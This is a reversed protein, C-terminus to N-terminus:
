RSCRFVPSFFVQALLQGACCVGNQSPDAPINLLLNRSTPCCVQKTPDFTVAYSSSYKCCSPLTGDAVYSSGSTSSCCTDLSPNFVTRNNCCAQTAVNYATSGCCSYSVGPAKPYLTGSAILVFTSVLLAIVLSTM